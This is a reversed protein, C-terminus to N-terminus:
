RSIVPAPTTRRKRAHRVADALRLIWDRFQRCLLGLQKLTWRVLPIVVFIILCSIGYTALLQLAPRYRYDHVIPIPTRLPDIRAYLLAGTIIFFLPGTLLVSDLVRLPLRRSM